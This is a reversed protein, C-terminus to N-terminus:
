VNKYFGDTIFLKIICCMLLLLKYTSRIINDTSIDPRFLDTINHINLRSNREIIQIM